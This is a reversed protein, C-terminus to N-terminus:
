QALSVEFGRKGTFRNTADPGRRKMLRNAAELAGDGAAGAALGACNTWLLSCARAAPVLACLALALLLLRLAARASLSAVAANTPRASLRPCRRTARAGRTGGRRRSSAAAGNRPAHGDPLRM